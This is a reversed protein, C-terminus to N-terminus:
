EEDYSNKAPTLQKKFFSLLSQVDVVHGEPHAVLTINEPKSYNTYIVQIDKLAARALEVTFDTPPEKLGNQCLLPRPAILSYIDSFDVLERLGPFKWCMCHGQEMQDMRTLFGCSVSAKIRQDMAGLWMAMEGGLSLGACGIRNADVSILSELYDVCRMADWLREGMLTRGQEYIEHQSVVPAITVYNRAALDAAFAIYPSEKEYVSYPKGGHGHICVVAPWPGNTLLPFTVIVRIRRNATSNIEIEKVLHDGKNETLIENPNLPMNKGAALLDDINLLESMKTRVETQWIEAKKASRSSYKMSRQKQAVASANLVLFIMTFYLTFWGPIRMKISDKM